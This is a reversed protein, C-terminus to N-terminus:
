RHTRRDKSLKNTINHIASYKSHMEKVSKKSLHTYRMVMRLDRHGLMEALFRVEGGNELYITAASHRFLHPYVNIELGAKEAYIKIRDRMRDDAINEGYNTLFIFESDFDENEKILDALLRLTGKSIPVKKSRRVKVNNAPITILELNFDIDSVKIKVAENLRFFGDILVNMFVFDRFGVYTKRNPMKLLRELQEGSMVEIESEPEIVPKIKAMPNNQIYDEDYLFNFMTRLGKLRTNVTVPSLGVTKDKEAKHAHGEWKRKEKLM